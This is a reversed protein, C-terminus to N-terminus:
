KCYLYWPTSMARDIYVSWVYTLQYRFRDDFVVYDYMKNNPCLLRIFELTDFWAFLVFYPHISRHNQCHRNWICYSCSSTSIASDIGSNWIHEISLPLSRRFVCWRVDQQKIMASSQIWAYWIMSVIRFESSHQSSKQM